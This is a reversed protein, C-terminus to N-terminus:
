LHTNLLVSNCTSECTYILIYRIDFPKRQELLFPILENSWIKYFMCVVYKGALPCTICKFLVYCYCQNNNSCHKGFGFLTVLVLDPCSFITNIVKLVSLLILLSHISLWYNRYMMHDYIYTLTYKSVKNEEFLGHSQPYSISTLETNNSNILLFSSVEYNM